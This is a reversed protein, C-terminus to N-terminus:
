PAPPWPAGDRIRVVVDADIGLILRPHHPPSVTIRWPGAAGAPGPLASTVKADLPDGATNDLHVRAEQGIAILKAREPPVEGVVHFADPAIIEFLSVGAQVNTGVTVNRSSVLGAIPAIVPTGGPPPEMADLASQAEDREARLADVEHIAAEIEEKGLRALELDSEAREVSARAVIVDQQAQELELEAEEIRLRTEDDPDEIARLREIEQRHLDEATECQQLVARALAVSAEAARIAVPVRTQLVALAAQEARLRAELSALHQRAAAHSASLEEANEPELRALVQGRAVQEGAAVLLEAVRGASRATVAVSTGGVRAPFRIFADDAPSPGLRWLALVGGIGLVLLLILLGLRKM